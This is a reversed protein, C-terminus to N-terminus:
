GPTLRTWRAAWGAAAEDFSRVRGIGSGRRILRSAPRATLPYRSPPLSWGAGHPEALSRHSRHPTQAPEAPGARLVSRRLGPTTSPRYLDRKTRLGTASWPVM